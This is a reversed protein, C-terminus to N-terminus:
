KGRKMRLKKKRAKGKRAAEKIREEDLKAQLELWENRMTLLDFEKRLETIDRELQEVGDSVVPSPKRGPRRNEWVGNLITLADNRIDCIRSHHVGFEEGLQRSPASSLAVTIRDEISLKKQGSNGEKVPEQTKQEKKDTADKNLLENVDHAKGLNMSEITHGHFHKTLKEAVMRGAQDMDFSEILTANSPISTLKELDYNVGPLAVACVNPELTHVSLADIISECLHVRPAQLLEGWDLCFAHQTGLLFKERPSSGTIKRNFLSQLRGKADRIAFCCYISEDISNVTVVQCGVLEDVLERSIGRYILYNRAQRPDNGCLKGHLRVLDIGATDGKRSHSVQDTIELEDTFKGAEKVMAHATRIALGVDRHGHYSMVADIITGGQGSGHDYYVWHGDDEENVYFSPDQEQRFPSCAVYNKGERTFEVQWCRSMIEVLNIRKLTDVTLDM